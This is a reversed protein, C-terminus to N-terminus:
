PSNPPMILGAEEAMSNPSSTLSKVCTNHIPESNAETSCTIHQKQACVIHGTKTRALTKLSKKKTRSPITISKKTSTEQSQTTNLTSPPTDLSKTLAGTVDNTGNKDSEQVVKSPEGQNISGFGADCPELEDVQVEIPRKAMKPMALWGDLARQWRTSSPRCETRDSHLLEEINLGPQFENNDARLWKGYMGTEERDKGIPQLGSGPCDRLDHGLMGCRFCFNGLKEYKFPIWLDLLGDRELPFGPTLPGSTDFEVRVKVSRRWIGQGPSVADTDLARGVLSGIKLLNETSVRNLPLGHVQIWFETTSFDVESISLDSNFRKLILPDGKVTSPRRDWERRLEAEHVFSFIFVNKDAVSVEIDNVINWAKTLIEKVLPKPFVKKSLIKGILLRNSKEQASPDVDLNLKNKLWGLKATQSTIDEINEGDM